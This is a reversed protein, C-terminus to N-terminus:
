SYDRGFEIVDYVCGKPYPESAYETGREQVDLLLDHVALVEWEIADKLGNLVVIDGVGVKEVRDQREFKDNRDM